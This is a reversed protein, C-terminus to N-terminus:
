FESSLSFLFDGSPSVAVGPLPVNATEEYDPLSPRTAFQYISYIWCAVAAGAVVGGVVVYIRARDIDDRLQDIEEKSTGPELTAEKYKEHERNGGSIGIGLLTVAGTSIGLGALGVARGLKTKRQREDRISAVARKRAVQAKKLKKEELQKQAKLAARRKEEARRKKERESIELRVSIERVEDAKVTVERMAELGQKELKVVHTGPDVLVKTPTWGMKRNDVWVMAGSPTSNVLLSAQKAQPVAKGVQQALTHVNAKLLVGIDFENCGGDTSAGGESAASRLDYLVSTVTCKPGLKMLVTSLSKQAALEKGIEIQCTQDYCVKYSEKKQQVLRQKLQSRPIVRYAGTAALASALYDSLRGLMEKSIEVGKVEIDFVAVIPKKAVAQAPLGVLVLGVVALFLGRGTRFM